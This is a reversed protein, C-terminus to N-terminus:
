GFGFFVFEMYAQTKGALTEIQSPPLLHIQPCTDGEGAGVYFRGQDYQVIEFVGGTCFCLALIEATSFLSINSFYLVFQTYTGYIEAM